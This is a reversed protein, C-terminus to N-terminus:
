RRYKSQVLGSSFAKTELHQWLRDHSLKGFLPIGGGLLVPVRTLTMEHVLGLELLSTILQGGDAYIHQTGTAELFHLLKPLPENRVELLPQLAEPVHQQQLSQSCVVVRKGMYPFPSFGLVTEFTKRGLLLTDIGAFFNAYGHDEEGSAQPLWDLAGNDRAIFGDLSTAIFVSIKMAATHCRKPSAQTARCLLWIQGFSPINACPTKEM